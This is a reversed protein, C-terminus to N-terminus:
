WHRYGCVQIFMYLCIFMHRLPVYFSMCYRHYVSAIYRINYIYIPPILMSFMCRMIIVCVCLGMSGFLKFKIYRGPTPKLYQGLFEPM